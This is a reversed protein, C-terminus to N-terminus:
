DDIQKLIDQLLKEDAYRRQVKQPITKFIGIYDDKMKEKGNLINDLLFPSYASHPIKSFINNDVKHEISLFVIYDTMFYEIAFDHVKYYENYFDIAFKCIRNGKYSGIFFSTFPINFVKDFLKNKETSECNLTMFGNQKIDEFLPYRNFFILTSDCRIGGYKYILNFRLIDSFTQITIKKNNFLNIINEDLIVYNCYNNLDIFFINYDFYYKKIREISIQNLLPLSDFGSGWFIFINKQDDGIASSFPSDDYDKQLLWSFEKELISIAYNRTKYNFKRLFNTFLFMVGYKFGFNKIHKRTDCFITGSKKIYHKLKAITM